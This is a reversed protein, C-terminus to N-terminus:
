KKLESKLRAIYKDFSSKDIRYSDPDFTSTQKKEDLIELIELLVKTNVQQGSVEPAKKKEIELETQLKRIEGKVQANEQAIKDMEGTLEQVKNIHIYEDPNFGQSLEPTALSGSLRKVHDLISKLFVSQDKEIGRVVQIVRTAQSEVAVLPTAIKSGPNIGTIEFYTLMESIFADYTKNGKWKDLTMKTLDKVKIQKDNEKAM